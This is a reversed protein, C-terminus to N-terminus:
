PYSFASPSPLIRNFWYSTELEWPGLLLKLEQVRSLRHFPNNDRNLIFEVERWVDTKWCQWVTFNKPVKEDHKQCELLVYTYISKGIMYNCCASEYTVGFEGSLRFIYLEIGQTLFSLFIFELM